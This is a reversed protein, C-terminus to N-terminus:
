YRDEPNLSVLTRWRTRKAQRYRELWRKAVSFLSGKGLFVATVVLAALLGWLTQRALLLRIFVEGREGTARGEYGGKNGGAVTLTREPLTAIEVTQKRANWWQVQIAPLSVEGQRQLLYSRREIRVGSFAGRDTDAHTQARHPQQEVGTVPPWQLPPILMGLTGQARITIQREVADGARLSSTQPLWTESIMLEEAVPIGEPVTPAFSEVQFVLPPSRLERPGGAQGGSEAVRVRAMLGPVIVQGSRQPFLTFEHRQAAYTKHYRRVTFNQAFSQPRITVVGPLSLPEIRPAGTFWSDTLIDLVLTVRQGPKVTVTAVPQRETNLFHAEIWVSDAAAVVGHCIMLVVLSLIRIGTM